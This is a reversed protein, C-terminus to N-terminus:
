KREKDAKFGIFDVVNTSDHGGIPDGNADLKRYGLQFWHRLQDMRESLARSQIVISEVEDIIRREEDDSTM